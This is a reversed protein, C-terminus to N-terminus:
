KELIIAYHLLDPEFEKIVRSGLKTALAKVQALSIPYHSTKMILKDPQWDVVVVKGLPKAIRLAEKLINSQKESQFLINSVIVWDCSDNPLTSGNPKELNARITKINFLKQERAKASIVELPEALVDIAYVIGSPGTKQAGGITIFGSGAGFDAMTQGPAIELNDLLKQTNLLAQEM